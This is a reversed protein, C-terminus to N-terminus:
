SRCRRSSPRARRDRRPARRGAAARRPGDGDARRVRRPRDRLLARRGRRDGRAGARDGRRRSDREGSSGASSRSSSRAASSRSSLAHRATAKPSPPTTRSRTTRRTSPTRCSTGRSSTTRPAPAVDNRLQPNVARGVAWVGGEKREIWLVIREASGGDDFGEVVREAFRGPQQSRHVAALICDARHAPDAVEETPDEREGARLRALLLADGGVQDALVVAAPRDLLDEVVRVDAVAGGRLLDLAHELPGVHDPRDAVVRRLGRLRARSLPRSAGRGAGRRGPGVGRAREVQLRRHRRGAPPGPLEGAVVEQLEHVELWDLVGQSVPEILDGSELKADELSDCCVFAARQSSPTTSSARRRITREPPASSLVRSWGSAACCRTARPRHDDRGRRLRGRRPPERRGRRRGGQLVREAAGREPLLRGGGRDGAAGRPHVRGAHAGPLRLRDRRADTRRAQRSPPAALASAAGTRLQGLRNAEIVAKTRGHEFLVVVFSIAEAGAAYQKVCALGRETDVASM